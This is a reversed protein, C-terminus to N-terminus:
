PPVKRIKRTSTTACQDSPGTPNDTEMGQVWGHEELIALATEAQMTTTIGTWQKRALDRVTFGEELKGEALRRSVM